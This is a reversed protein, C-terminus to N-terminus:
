QVLVSSDGSVSMGAAGVLRRGLIGAANQLEPCKVIQYTAPITVLQEAYWMPNGTSGTLRTTGGDLAELRGLARPLRCGIKDIPADILVEVDYEWGVALHEELMLVPDLDAPPIFTDDLM